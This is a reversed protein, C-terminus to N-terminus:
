KGPKNTHDTEGSGSGPEQLREASGIRRPRLKARPRSSPPSHAVSRYGEQIRRFQASDLPFGLNELQKLITPGDAPPSLAKSLDKLAIPDSAIELVISRALNEALKAALYEDAAIGETLAHAFRKRATRSDLKTFFLQWISRSMTVDSLVHRMGAEFRTTDDVLATFVDRAHSEIIGGLQRHLDEIRRDSDRLAAQKVDESRKDLDALTQRAKETIEERHAAEMAKVRQDFDALTEKVRAEIEERAKKRVERDGRWAGVGTGIATLLAAFALIWAPGGVDDTKQANSKTSDNQAWAVTPACSCLTVVALLPLLGRSRTTAFPRNTGSSM